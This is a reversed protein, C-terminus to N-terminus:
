KQKEPKCLSCRVDLRLEGRNPVHKKNKGYQCRGAELVAEAKADPLYRMEFKTVPLMASIGPALEMLPCVITPFYARPDKGNQIEFV